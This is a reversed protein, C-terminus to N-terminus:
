QEAFVDDAALKDRGTQVDAIPLTAEFQIRFHMADSRQAKIFGTHIRRAPYGGWAGGGSYYTSTAPLALSDGRVEFANLSSDAQWRLYATYENDAIQDDYGTALAYEFVRHPGDAMFYSVEGATNTFSDIRRGEYYRFYATYPQGSANTPEDDDKKCSAAPLVCCAAVLPLLFRKM